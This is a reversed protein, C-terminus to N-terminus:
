RATVPALAYRVGTMQESLEWLRRAAEEDKSAPTSDCQAPHGRMEFM